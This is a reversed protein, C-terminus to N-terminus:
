PEFVRTVNVNIDYREFSVPTVDMSPAIWKQNPQNNLFADNLLIEFSNSGATDQVYNTIARTEYKDRNRFVLTLPQNFTNIGQPQRQSYGDGLQVVIATNQTNLKTTYDPIFGFGSTWAGCLCHIAGASISQTQAWGPNVYSLTGSGGKVIMGTYNVSSNASVGTVQIIAGPGFPPGGTHTFTLTTVDDARSYQTIPYNYIGWPSYGVPVEITAYFYPPEYAMDYQKYVLTDSFPPIYYQSPM